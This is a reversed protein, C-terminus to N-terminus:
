ICTEQMVPLNKVDSDGPFGEDGKFGLLSKSHLSRKRNRGTDKTKPISDLAYNVSM